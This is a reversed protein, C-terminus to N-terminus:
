IYPTPKTMGVDFNRPHMATIIENKPVKNRRWKKKEINDYKYLTQLLKIDKHTNKIM